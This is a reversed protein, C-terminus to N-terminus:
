TELWEKTPKIVTLTRTSEVYGPMTLSKGSLNAYATAAANVRHWCREYGERAQASQHQRNAFGELSRLGSTYADEHTQLERLRALEAGTAQPGNAGVLREYDTQQGQGRRWADAQAQMRANNQEATLEM